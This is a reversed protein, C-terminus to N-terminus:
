EVHACPFGLLWVTEVRLLDQGGTWHVRQGLLSRDAPRSEEDDDLSIGV